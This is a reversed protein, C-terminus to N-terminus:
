EESAPKIFTVMLGMALMFLLVFGTGQMSYVGYLPADLSAHTMGIFLTFWANVIVCVTYTIFLVIKQGLSISKKCFIMYILFGILPSM